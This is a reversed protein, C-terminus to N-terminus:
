NGSLNESTDNSITEYNNSQENDNIESNNSTNNYTTESNNSSNNDNSSSNDSTENNSSNDLNCQSGGCDCSNNTCNCQNTIGYNSSNCSNCSYNSESCPNSNQCGCYQKICSCDDSDDKEPEKSFDVESYPTLHLTGDSEADETAIFLKYQGCSTKILLKNGAKVSSVDTVLLLSYIKSYKSKNDLLVHNSYDYTYDISM